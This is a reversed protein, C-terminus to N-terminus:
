NSTLSLDKLNVGILRSVRIKVDPVQYQELAAHPIRDGVTARNRLRMYEAWSAVIFREVFRGDEELDAFVRWSLAGNRRRTPEVSRIAKLFIERNEAAIQYQVQILIPGDDAMPESAMVLEPLQYGPEVDAESGLSVRVRYSVVLLLLMATASTTLTMQLGIAMALAGWVISGVGLSAQVSVLSTAVARARVWAPATTQTGASLSAFVSVWAMGATFTALVAFVIWGSVALLVVALAWLVSGYIVISHLSKQRLQAPVSLAGVIAGIGFGASLLGFGGAGLKLQDRAIVPLLAWFASACVAFGFNRFVLARMGPTHRVFRMGSVVGSVLREPVGPLAPEGSKVKKAALLM